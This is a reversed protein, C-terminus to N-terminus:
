DVIWGLSCEAAKEPEFPYKKLCYETYSDIAKVVDRSHFTLQGPGFSRNRGDDAPALGMPECPIVVIDFDPTVADFSITASRPCSLYTKDFLNGIGADVYVREIGDPHSVECDVGNPVDCNITTASAPSAVAFSVLTLAFAAMLPLLKKTFSM